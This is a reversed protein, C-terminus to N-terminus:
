LKYQFIIQISNKEAEYNYCRYRLWKEYKSKIAGKEESSLPADTRIFVRPLGREESALTRLKIEAIELHSEMLEPDTKIDNSAMIVADMLTRQKIRPQSIQAQQM